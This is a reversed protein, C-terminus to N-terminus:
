SSYKNNEAMKKHFSCQNSAEKNKLKQRAGLRHNAVELRNNVLKLIKATEAATPMIVATLSCM